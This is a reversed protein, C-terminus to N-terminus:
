NRVGGETKRQKEQKYTCPFTKSIQMKIWMSVDLVDKLIQLTIGYNLYSPFSIPSFDELTSMDM